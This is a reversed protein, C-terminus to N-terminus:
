AQLISTYRVCCASFNFDRVIYSWMLLNMGTFSKKVVFWYLFERVQFFFNNGPVRRIEKIDGQTWAKVQTKKLPLLM